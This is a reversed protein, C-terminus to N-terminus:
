PQRWVDFAGDYRNSREIANMTAVAVHDLPQDGSRARELDRANEDRELRMGELDHVRGGRRQQERRVAFFKFNERFRSDVVDRNQWESRLQGGVCGFVEDLQHKASAEPQALEKDSVIMAEPSLSRAVDLNKAPEALPISEPHLHDIRNGSGIPV